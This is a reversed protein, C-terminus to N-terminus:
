GGGLNFLGPINRNAWGMAGGGTQQPTMKVPALPDHSQAINRMQMAGLVSNGANAIGANAQRPDAQNGMLAQAMQMRYADQPDQQGYFYGPNSM